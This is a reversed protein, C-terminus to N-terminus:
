WRMHEGHHITYGINAARQGSAGFTRKASNKVHDSPPFGFNKHDLALPLIFISKPSCLLLPHM